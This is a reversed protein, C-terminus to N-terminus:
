EHVMLWLCLCVCGWGGERGRWRRGQSLNKGKSQHLPLYFHEVEISTGEETDLVKQGAVFLDTGLLEAYAEELQEDSKDIDSLDIISITTVLGNNLEEQETSFFPVM